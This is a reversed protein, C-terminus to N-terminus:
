TLTTTTALAGIRRPNGKSTRSSATAAASSSTPLMSSPPPPAAAPCPGPGHPNTPTPSTRRTRRRGPTSRPEAAPPVAEHASVPAPTQGVSPGRSDPGESHDAHQTDNESGHESEPLGDERPVAGGTAGVERCERDRVVPRVAALRGAGARVPQRPRLTCPQHPADDHPLHRVHRRRRPSPRECDLHPCPRPRSCRNCRHWRHHRVCRRHHRLRAASRPRTAEGDAACLAMREDAVRGARPGSPAGLEQEGWLPGRRRCCTLETSWSTLDGSRVWAGQGPWM